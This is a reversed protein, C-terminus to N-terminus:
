PTHKFQISRSQLQKPSIRLETNANKADQKGMLAVLLDLKQNFFQQVKQEFSAMMDKTSENLHEDLHKKVRCIFTWVSGVLEHNSLEFQDFGLKTNTQIRKQLIDCEHWYIKQHRARTREDFSSFPNLSDWVTPPTAAEKIVKLRRQVDKIAEESSLKDMQEEDHKEAKPRRKTVRRFFRELVYLPGSGFM